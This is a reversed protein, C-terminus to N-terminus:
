IRLWVRIEAAHLSRRKANVRESTIMILGERAAKKLIGAMCNPSVEEPVDGAVDRVDESTIRSGKPFEKIAELCSEVYQAKVRVAKDYADEIGREKLVRGVDVSRTLEGKDFLRDFLPQASM